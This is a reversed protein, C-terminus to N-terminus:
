LSRKGRIEELEEESIARSTDPAKVKADSSVRQIGWLFYFVCFAEPCRQHQPDVTM